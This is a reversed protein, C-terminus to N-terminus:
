GTFPPNKHRFGIKKSFVLVIIALSQAKVNRKQSFSIMSIIFLIKVIYLYFVCFHLYYQQLIFVFFMHYYQLKIILSFPALM